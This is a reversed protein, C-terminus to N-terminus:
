SREAPSRSTGAQHRYPRPAKTTCRSCSSRATASRPPAIPSPRPASATRPEPLAPPSSSRCGCHSISPMSRSRRLRSQTPVTGDPTIGVDLRPNNSANANVVIKQYEVKFDQDAGPGAGCDLTNCQTRYWGTYVQVQQKGTIQLSWAGSGNTVTSKTPSSVVVGSVGVESARSRRQQERRSLGRGIGHRHPHCQQRCRHSCRECRCRHGGRSHRSPSRSSAVM